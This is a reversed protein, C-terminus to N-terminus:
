QKVGQLAQQAQYLYYQSTNGPAAVNGPKVEKAALTFYKAANTKDNNQEYIAAVTSSSDASHLVGDAKLAYTLAANLQNANLAAGAADLELVAATHPDAANSVANKYVAEAAAAGKTASTQDAQNEVISVKGPTVRDAIKRYVAWGVCAILIVVIAVVWFKSSRLLGSRGVAGDGGSSVVVKETESTESM